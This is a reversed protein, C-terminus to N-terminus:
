TVRPSGVDKGYRLASDRGDENRGSAKIDISTSPAEAGGMSEIESEKGNVDAGFRGPVNAYPGYSPAEGFLETATRETTKAM